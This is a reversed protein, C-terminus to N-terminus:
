AEVEQNIFRVDKLPIQSFIFKDFDVKTKVNLVEIGVINGSSDVDAIYDPSIEFSDIGAKDMFSIYLADTTKDYNFKM